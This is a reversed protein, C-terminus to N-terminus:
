LRALIKQMGKANPNYGNRASSFTTAVISLGSIKSLLFPRWGPIKGSSSGGEVQYANLTMHGATSVGLLHPEVIRNHNDYRFSLGQRHTIAEIIKEKM